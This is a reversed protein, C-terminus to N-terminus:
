KRSRSKNQSTISAKRSTPRSQYEKTTKVWDRDSVIIRALSTDKNKNLVYLANLRRFLPLPEIGNALARKLARHRENVTMSKVNVYGYKKLVDKELRFLQKGKGKNGVDKICVPPVTAGKVRTAPVNIMKGSKSSRKYSRRNTPRRNYGSRKIMGNPCEVNTYKKDMQRHLESRNELYTRDEDSRKLKSQSTSRICKSPVYVKKGSISKRSFGKRYIENKNCIESM